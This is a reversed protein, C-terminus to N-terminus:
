ADEDAQDSGGYLLMWTTTKSREGGVFPAVDPMRNCEARVSAQQYGTLAALEQTDLKGRRALERRIRQPLSMTGAVLEPEDALKLPIFCAAHMENDFAMRYSLPDLPPGDFPKRPSLKVGFRAARPELRQMHWIMRARFEFLGSGIVSIDETRSNRHAKNPHASALKVVGEGLSGIASMTPAAYEPSNLDSGTAFTLSDVIVMVPKIREVMHRMDRIRDFLRGRTSMDVYHLHKPPAKGLGRCILGLRRNATREDVEWDFFVVPGSRSPQGFVTECDLAICTALYLMLYSKTSGQDALLLTVQGDPLLPDILMAVDLDKDEAGTLVVSDPVATHREYVDMFTRDIDQEWSGTKVLSELKATVVKRDSATTLTVAQWYLREPGNGNRRDPNVVSMFGVVRGSDTEHLRTFCLAVHRDRWLYRIEDTFETIEPGSV